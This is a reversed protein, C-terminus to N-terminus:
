ITLRDIRQTVSILLVNMVGIGGVLVSIGVILGMIVKFLLFGQTAQQLRFENTLLTFDSEREKFTKKLWAAIEEKISNVDEITAVEFAMEPYFKGKMRTIPFYLAPTKNKDDFLVGIVKLTDGKFIITRNLMDAATVGIKQFFASNVVVHPKQQLIDTSEFLRGAEAKQNPSIFEGTARAHTGIPADHTSVTAEGSQTLWMYAQAPHHLSSQLEMLQPYSITTVTDKAVRVENVLKHTETRIVIANLSSTSRIQDKAFKELGEIFSLIAVLAAVGIVIGLISLLTHFFHSRINHFALLFSGTIKKLM